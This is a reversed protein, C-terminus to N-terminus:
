KLYLSKISHVFPCLFVLKDCVEWGWFDGRLECDFKSKKM